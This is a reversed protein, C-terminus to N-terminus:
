RTRSPVSGFSSLRESCARRPPAAACPTGRTRRNAHDLAECLKLDGVTALELCLNHMPETTQNVVLVQLVVHAM